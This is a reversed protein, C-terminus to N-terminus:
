THPSALLGQLIATNHMSCLIGAKDKFAGIKSVAKNRIECALINSGTRTHLENGFGKEKTYGFARPLSVSHCPVPLSTLPLFLQPLRLCLLPGSTSTTSFYSSASINSRNLSLTALYATLITNLFHDALKALHKSDLRTELHLIHNFPLSHLDGRSHPLHYSSLPAASDACSLNLPIRPLTQLCTQPSLALPAEPM